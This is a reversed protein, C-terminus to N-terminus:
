KINSTHKLWAAGYLIDHYDVSNQKKIVLYYEINSEPIFTVKELNNNVSISRYIYTYDNPDVYLDKDFTAINMQIRPVIYIDLDPLSTDVDPAFNGHGASSFMTRKLFNM